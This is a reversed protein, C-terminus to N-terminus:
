FYQPYCLLGAATEDVIGAAGGTAATGIPGCTRGRPSQLGAPLAGHTRKILIYLRPAWGPEM